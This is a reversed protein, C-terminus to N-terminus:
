PVYKGHVAGRGLAFEVLRANLKFSNLIVEFFMLIAFHLFCLFGFFFGVNSRGLIKSLLTVLIQPEDCRLRADVKGLIQCGHKFWIQCGHQASNPLWTSGFNRFM